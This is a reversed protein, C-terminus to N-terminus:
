PQGGLSRIRELREAAQDAWVDSSDVVIPRILIVLETKVSRNRRNDFLGGFLPARRLGPTGIGQDSAEDRMLGGIVVVEGSRARIISDSERVTSFALPLTEQEGGTTFSKIQDRVESVSPHVHLIVSGDRSIQPTVDLAVGSFFPTLQVTSATTSTATGAATQSEVGTVFFEDNGVKIVAKQNNVTAIRPSSLVRTNGQTELLELFGSFDDSSAAITFPGGFATSTFPGPPAGPVIPIPTNRLASSGEEFIDAGGVQGIAFDGGALEFLTQWNIGSRFEDRLEVEIIRAELIVQRQVSDQIAELWANVARHGQPLASISIVGALANSIVQGGGNHELLRELSGELDDWFRTESDTEIRTSSTDDESEGNVGAGGGFGGGGTDLLSPPLNTAQGSAVRTRSVGSRSLALYNIEYIRSSVRAPEVIFGAATERYEWGHLERLVELVERVTVNRLELSVRGALSPHVVLNWDSDAVLSLLFERAPANDVFVDFRPEPPAVDIPPEPEPLLLAETQRPDPTSPTLAREIANDTDAAREPLNGCAALALVALVAFQPLVAPLIRKM